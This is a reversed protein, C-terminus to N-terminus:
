IHGGEYARQGPQPTAIGKRLAHLATTRDGNLHVHTVRRGLARLSQLDGLAQARRLTDFGYSRGPVQEDRTADDTLLIFVGNGAGGKHLQGTSHLYRPGYGLTTAVLLQDRLEMRLAQLERDTAPEPPLYALLAVYDGPSVTSLVEALSPAPEERPPGESLIRSTADKASQVNPQDFPNIRLRQGAVATAFMWRFFEAGLQGTGEFPLRVVGHGAAELAALDSHEGIAVFLRDDGYQGPPATTEGVVPLIGRGQKGTSEAILQEAWDGFSALEHPLLLTLKDRGALAAEGIVAGLLAGPNRSPDEDHCAEAMARGQSLLEELDAGALAAPVLGFYSLASYRGGIEPPNLFVRRFGREDGLRHLPSAEDTIAVFHRGQPAKSWFYDFHTLTEITSGSKSAVVFLTKGFDLSGALALVADPHTTDLVDLALMGQRTGFTRQIVEPALSSGGM